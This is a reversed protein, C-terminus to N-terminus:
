MVHILFHIFKCRKGWLLSKQNWSDFKNFSVHLNFRTFGSQSAAAADIAAASTPIAKLCNIPPRCWCRRGISEATATFQALNWTSINSSAVQFCNAYRSEEQTAKNHHHPLVTDPSWQLFVSWFHKQLSFYNDRFTYTDLGTYVLVGLEWRYSRNRLM